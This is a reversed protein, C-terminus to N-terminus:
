RLYVGVSKNLMLAALAYNLNHAVMKQRVSALDEVASQLDLSTAMGVEYQRKVLRHTEEVLLLQQMTLDVSRRSKNLNLLNDEIEKHIDLELQKFDNQAIRVECKQTLYDSRRAGGQLISWSAAVEVNWSDKENGFGASSNWQWGYNLNFKPIWQYLIDKRLLDMMEHNIRKAQLDRRQNWAIELLENLVTSIPEYKEPTSTDFKGVIDILAALATKSVEVADITNEFLNQASLYLSEARLIDIRTAQGVKKLGKSLKLFEEANKLSEEAVGVANKAFDIQYYAGAVAVLLENSFHSAALTSQDVTKYAYKLLPYARANFLTVSANFGYHSANKEQMIMTQGTYDPIGLSIEKDNRTWSANADLNPLLIAWAKSVLLNSQTIRENMTKVSPNDRLAMEMAEAMSVVPRTGNNNDVDRASVSPCFMLFCSCLVLLFMAVSGASKKTF